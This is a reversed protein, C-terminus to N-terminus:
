QWTIIGDLIFFSLAANASLILVGSSNFCICCSWAFYFFPPSLQRRPPPAIVSKENRALYFQCGRFVSFVCSDDCEDADRHSQTLFIEKCCRELLNRSPELLHKLLHPMRLHHLMSWLLHQQEQAMMPQKTPTPSQRNPQADGVSSAGDYKSGSIGMVRLVVRGSAM